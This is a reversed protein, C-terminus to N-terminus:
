ADAGRTLELLAAYLAPVEIPKALHGDMGAQRAADIDSAFANATVALIKVGARDDGLARIARTAQYGNMIPMQVDMLVVDYYGAPATSVMELAVTGDEAEEVEFGAEGLLVQAIARNLANDEVLLVRKGAFHTRLEEPTLERPPAERLERELQAAAQPPVQRLEVRVTFTTGRGQISDVTIRGGVSDVIRKVISLGLGTGEKGSVTSSQERSFPEFLHTLYEPSMGIGTDSVQLQYLACGERSCPEQAASVTVTGGRPTFKVANGLLNMLVQNMRLKDCYVWPDTVGNSIRLTLGEDQARIGIISTIEELLDGLHVPTESLEVRGSEIRSMELVDNILMLLHQGSTRIKPLYDERIVSLDTERIAFDTFSMIANMPTRIDHSMQSLFDTKARSSEEAQIRALIAADQRRRNVLYYTCVSLFVLILVIMQIVSNRTLTNQVAEVGEGVADYPITAMLCWDTDSIQCIHTFYRAGDVQYSVYGHSDAATVTDRLTQQSYGGDYAARKEMVSLFNSGSGLHDYPAQMVYEGNKQIIECSISSDDDFLAIRNTITDTDVGGILALLEKGNYQFGKMPVIFMVLNSSSVTNNFEIVPRDLQQSIFLFKSIGSFTREETHVMGASDLLGMFNFGNVAKMRSLFNRLAAEDRVNDATMFELAATQRQLYNELNLNIQNEKQISVEHLYIRSTDHVTAFSTGDASRFFFFYWFLCVFLLLGILVLALAKTSVGAGGPPRPNRRGKNETM